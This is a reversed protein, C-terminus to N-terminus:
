SHFGSISVTNNDPDYIEPSSLKKSGGIVIVKGNNLLSDTHSARAINLDAAPTSAPLEGEQSEYRAVPDLSAAQRMLDTIVVESEGGYLKPTAANTVETSTPQDSEGACGFLVLMTTLILVSKVLKIM